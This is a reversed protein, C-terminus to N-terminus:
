SGIREVQEQVTGPGGLLRFSYSILLTYILGLLAIWGTREMVSCNMFYDSALVSILYMSFGVYGLLLLGSLRKGLQKKM